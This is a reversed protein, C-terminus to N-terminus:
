NCLWICMHIDTHTKYFMAYPRAKTLNWEGGSLFSGGGVLEGTLGALTDNLASYQHSIWDRLNPEKQHREKADKEIYHFPHHLNGAGDMNSTYCQMILSWTVTKGGPLGARNTVGYLKVTRVLLDPCVPPHLCYVAPHYTSNWNVLSGLCRM